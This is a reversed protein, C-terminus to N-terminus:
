DVSKPKRGVELHCSHCLGWLSLTDAYLLRKIFGNWDDEPGALKSGPTRGAPIMHDVELDHAKMDVLCRGCFYVGPRVRHRKIVDRRAESEMWLKRLASRIRSHM